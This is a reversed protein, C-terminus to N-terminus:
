SSREGAWGHVWDRERNDRERFGVFVRARRRQLHNHTTHLQTHALHGTRHTQIHKYTTTNHLQLITHTCTRHTTNLLPASRTCCTHITIVVCWLVYPGYVHSVCCPTDRGRGGVLRISVSGIVFPAAGGGGEEENRRRRGGTNRRRRLKLRVAKAAVEGVEVGVDLGAHPHPPGGVRTWVFTRRVPQIPNDGKGAEHTIHVAGTRGRGREFGLHVLVEVM